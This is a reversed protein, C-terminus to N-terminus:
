NGGKIITLLTETPKSLMKVSFNYERGIQANSWGKQRLNIIVIYRKNRFHTQIRMIPFKADELSSLDFRELYKNFLPKIVEYDCLNYEGGDAFDMNNEDCGKIFGDVIEKMREHNIQDAEIKALWEDHEKQNQEDGVRKQYEIIDHCKGCLTILDTAVDEHGFNEYTIHHVQLNRASGCKQCKFDDMLLRNRRRIQWEDSNIYSRYESTTKFDRPKDM